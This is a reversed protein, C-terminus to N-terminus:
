IKVLSSFKIGLLIPILYMISTLSGFVAAPVCAGSLCVGSVFSCGVVGGGVLKIEEDTNAISFYKNLIIGTILGILFPVGLAILIVSGTIIIVGNVAFTEFAYSLLFKMCIFILFSVIFLIIFKKSM